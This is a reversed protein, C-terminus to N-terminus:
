ALRIVVKGTARRQRLLELGENAAELPLVHSVHPTIRGLGFWAFLTEASSRFVEPAAATYAAWNLGLVTLDKVLLYNAPVQPVGGGAFGLPLLRAGPRTARLAADFSAGGVPDYVVDAGGFAKVEAAIDAGGDLLHHAGAARAIELRAADRAVAIVRAGMLAGIEVATLGVGGSSGLVLLTEGPRLRAAWALAIHSTGYAILFGAAAEDTMAEPAAICRTAPVTRYDALGGHGVYAAVRTGAKLGVVGLGTAEVTGCIEMGPAFPLQPKVQYRGTLLLTDAFNLGCARIRLLVEGPGPEPVPAEAMALPQGLEDIRMVRM